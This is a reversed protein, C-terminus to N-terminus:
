GTVAVAITNGPSQLQRRNISPKPREHRGLCAAMGLPSLPLDARFWSTWFRARGRRDPQPRAPVGPRSLDIVRLGADGDALYALPGLRLERHMALTDLTAVLHPQTPDSVDIVLLGDAGAALYVFGNAVELDRLDSCDPFHYSSILQPAAQNHIDVICLDGPTNSLYALNGDIVVDHLLRPAPIIEFGQLPDAETTDLISMGTDGLPLVVCGQAFALHWLQGQASYAARFTPALPTDMDWSTVEFNSRIAQESGVILSNDDAIVSRVWGPLPLKALYHPTEPTGVDAIHIGGDGDILYAYGNHVAVHDVRGSVVLSAVVEMHAPDAIDIVRLGQASNAILAYHDVLEIDAIFGAMSLASIQKPAQPDSVDIAALSEGSEMYVTTQAVTISWTSASLRLSGLSRPTHVDSVDLLQLGNGAVLYAIQNTVVVDFLTSPFNMQWVQWPRTPQAVDLLTLGYHSHAIFLSCDQIALGSIEKTAFHALIKPHAPDDIAVIWLGQRGGVYAINDHLVIRFTALPLYGVRIPHVPNTLDFIAFESHFGVYAYQGQVEITLGAGGMHTILDLNHPM